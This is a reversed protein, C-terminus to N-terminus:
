NFSIKIRSEIIDKFKIQETITVKKNKKGEKIKTDYTVHIIDDTVASLVGRVQNGGSHKIEIIRGINKLYQRLFKLPSGVGASSVDLIYSEGFSKKEDFIAELWRSLKQCKLFSVGEDSDLFIEIKNSKIKYEILYLDSLELETLGQNILEDIEQLQM